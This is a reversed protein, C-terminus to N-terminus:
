RVCESELGRKVTLQAASFISVLENAEATVRILSEDGIIGADALLELWFM